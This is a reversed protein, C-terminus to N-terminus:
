RLEDQEEEKYFESMGEAELYALYARQEEIPCEEGEPLLCDGYSEHECMCYCAVCMHISRKSQPYITCSKKPTTLMIKYWFIGNVFM